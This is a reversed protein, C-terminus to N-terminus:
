LYLLFNLLFSNLVSEWESLLSVQREAKELLASEKVKMRDTTLQSEFEKLASQLNPLNNSNLANLLKVRSEQYQKTETFEFM